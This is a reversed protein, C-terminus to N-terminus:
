IDNINGKNYLYKAVDKYWSLTDYNKYNQQLSNTMIFTSMGTFGDLSIMNWLKPTARHFTVIRAYAEKWVELIQPNIGNVKCLGEVYVGFDYYNPSATTELALNSFDRAGVIESELYIPITVSALEHMKRLDYVSITCTRSSSNSQSNYYDFTNQAAGELDAVPEFLLPLNLDYPMGDLPVETASAVARDLVPALEYMVEVSGMFCCDFYIWSWRSLSLVNRLTTINMTKGKDNGWSKPTLTPGDDNIGNQTWGLSHSWLILGYDYAPAHNKADTFVELMRDSMVPSLDTNYQKVIELSGDSTMEYLTQTGDTPAHYIMLRNSKKLAGNRVATRMENIDLDDYGTLSNNAAMYVLITRAATKPASPEDSSCGTMVILLSLTAIAVKFIKKM